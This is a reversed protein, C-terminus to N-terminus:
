LPYGEKVGEDSPFGHLYNYKGSEPVFICKKVQCITRDLTKVESITAGFSPLKLKRTEVQYM